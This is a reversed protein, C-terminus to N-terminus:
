SVKFFLGGTLCYFMNADIGVGIVVIGEAGLEVVLKNVGLVAVVGIVGM